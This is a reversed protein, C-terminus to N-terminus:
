VTPFGAAALSARDHLQLYDEARPEVRARTDKEILKKLEHIANKEQDDGFLRPYYSYDLSGSRSIERFSTNIGMEEYSSLLEGMQSDYYEHNETRVRHLDLNAIIQHVQEVPLSFEEALKDPPSGEPDAKHKEYLTKHQPPIDLVGLKRQTEERKSMLFLVAKTRDLSTGYHLSLKDVSWEQPDEKHKKYMEVRTQDRLYPVQVEPLDIIHEDISVMYPTDKYESFRRINQFARRSLVRLM